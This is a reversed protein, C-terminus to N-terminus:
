DLRPLVSAIVACASQLLRLDAGTFNPGASASTVGKRSIQAVGLVIGENQVIRASMIKQILSEEQGIGSDGQRIAAIEFVALHRIQAFNNFIMSRGAATKAVIAASSLPIVGAGRLTQPFLFRLAEGTVRLLAVEDRRVRFVNALERCVEEATCDSKRCVRDLKALYTLRDTDNNQAVSKIEM